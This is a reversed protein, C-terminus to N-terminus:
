PEQPQARQFFHGPPPRCSHQHSSVAAGTRPQPWGRGQTTSAAKLAHREKWGAAPWRHSWRSTSPNQSLLRQGLAARRRSVTARRSRPPSPPWCLFCTTGGMQTCSASAQRARTLRARLSRTILAPQRPAPREANPAIARLMGATRGMGSRRAMRPAASSRGSNLWMTPSSFWYVPPM